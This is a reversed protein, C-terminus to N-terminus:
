EDPNVGLNNRIWRLSAYYKSKVTSEPMEEAAAIEQFTYEGFLKLRVIHQSVPELQHILANVREFDEKYELSVSLDRPDELEHEEIPEIVAREKYSRSRYYDILRNSALRYLWTRFSAKTEEYNAISKLVTIFIEQTLDLALHEDVTQKYTFAYMEKYYKSILKNAATKDASRKIKRIWQKEQHDMIEGHEVQKISREILIDTFHRM